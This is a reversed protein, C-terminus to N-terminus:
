MEAKGWTRTLPQQSAQHEVKCSYVDGEQPTFTLTSIRHFTGDDNHQYHLNFVGETVEVGNKTWTFNITPPYFHKALCYFTNVVNEEGEYRIYVFSHNFSCRHKLELIGLLQTTLGSASLLGTVWDTFDWFTNLPLM